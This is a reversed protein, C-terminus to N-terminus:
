KNAGVEKSSAGDGAGIEGCGKQYGVGHSERNDQLPHQLILREVLNELCGQTGVLVSVVHQPEEPLATAPHGRHALCLAHADPELAPRAGTEFVGDPDQGTVDAGENGSCLLQPGQRGRLM